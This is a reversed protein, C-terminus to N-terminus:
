RGYSLGQEQTAHRPARQAAETTVQQMRALREARDYQPPTQGQREQAMAAVAQQYSEYAQQPTKPSPKWSLHGGPEIGVQWTQNAQAWRADERSYRQTWREAFAKIQALADSTYAEAAAQVQDRWRQETQEDAM